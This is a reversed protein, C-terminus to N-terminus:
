IPVIKHSAATKVQAGLLLNLVCTLEKLLEQLGAAILSGILQNTATQNPQSPRM